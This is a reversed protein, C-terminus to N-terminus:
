PLPIEHVWTGPDVTMTTMPIIVDKNREVRFTITTGPTAPVVAYGNRIPFSKEADGDQAVVVAPPLTDPIQLHLYLADPRTVALTVIAGDAIEVDPPNPEFVMLKSATSLNRLARTLLVRLNCAGAPVQLAFSGDEAMETECILSGTNMNLGRYGRDYTAILSFPLGTVPKRTAADVVRGKVQVLPRLTIRYDKEGDVPRTRGEQILAWGKGYGPCTAEAVLEDIAPVGPIRYSGDAASTATMLYIPQRNFAGPRPALTIQAGSIPKGQPDVVTGHLPTTAALTISAERLREPPLNYNMHADGALLSGDAAKALVAVAFIGGRNSNGAVDVGRLAFRGDADTKAQLAPTAINASPYNFRMPPAMGGGGSTVVVVDAGQVPQGDPGVVVGSLAYPARLTIQRPAWEKNQPGGRQRETLSVLTLACDTVDILAYLVPLFRPLERDFQITTAVHGQADATLQRDERLSGDEEHLVRVLVKANAAPTGDPRLITTEFPVEFAAAATVSLLAWALMLWYGSWRM